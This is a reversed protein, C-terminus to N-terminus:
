KIKDKDIVEASSLALILRKTALRSFGGKRNEIRQLAEYPTHAPRYPRARTLADYTDCLSLTKVYIPMDDGMLGSPYGKGNEREHHFLICNYTEVELPLKICLGVGKSPHTRYVDQEHSSRQEPKKEQIEQPIDTKGVDHLLAGISSRILMEDTAQGYSRLVFYNLVMTGVSHNYHKYGKSIISTVTKISGPTDFFDVSDKVLKQLHTFRTRFVSPPLKEKFVNRVLALSAQYWARSRVHIPITEDQLIEALNDRLYAEYDKIQASSIYVTEVGMDDLKTRHDDTYATGKNTYLVHAGEQHLYVAFRGHRCPRLLLPSVAMYPKKGMAEKAADDKREESM